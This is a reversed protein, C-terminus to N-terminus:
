MTEGSRMRASPDQMAAMSWFVYTRRERDRKARYALMPDPGAASAM